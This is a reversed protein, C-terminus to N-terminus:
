QRLLSGTAFSMMGGRAAQSHGGVVLSEVRLVSAQLKKIGTGSFQIHVPIRPRRIFLTCNNRVEAPAIHIADRGAAFSM